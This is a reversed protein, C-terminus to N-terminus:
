AKFGILFEYFALHQDAHVSSISVDKGRTYACTQDFYSSERLLASRQRFNLHGSGSSNRWRPGSSIKTPPNGVPAPFREGVIVSAGACSNEGSYGM